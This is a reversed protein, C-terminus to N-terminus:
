SSVTTLRRNTFAIDIMDATVTIHLEEFDNCNELWHPGLIITEVFDDGGVYDRSNDWWDEDTEPNCNEAYATYAKEKGNINVMDRPNGNSMLYVGQDHVFFLAPKPTENEMWAMGWETSNQAHEVCRKVEDTKFVCAPM